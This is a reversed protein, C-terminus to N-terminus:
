NGDLRIVDNDGPNNGAVQYLNRTAYHVIHGDPQTRDPYSRDYTTTAPMYRFVLGARRKDSLNPNSGHVLKAHHFSMQGPKLVINVANSEDFAPPDIAANLAAGDGDGEVHAQLGDAHSGPVVRLCGNEVTSPDVAIWVSCTEPPDLPWYHGDQHWPVALGDGSRKAFLQSGWLIVDPGILAPVAKTILPLHATRLFIDSTDGKVNGAAGGALHPCVIQEPRLAPNDAILQDVANGLIRHDEPALTQDPTTYGDRDYQRADIM